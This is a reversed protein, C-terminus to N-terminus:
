FFCTTVPERQNLKLQKAMEAAPMQLLQDASKSDKFASSLRPKSYLAGDDDTLMVLPASPERERYERALTYGALGTGVIILPKMESAAYGNNDHVQSSNPLVSSLVRLPRFRKQHRRLGPM